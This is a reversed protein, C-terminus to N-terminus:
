CWWAALLFVGHHGVRGAAQRLALETKQGVQAIGFPLTKRSTELINQFDVFM